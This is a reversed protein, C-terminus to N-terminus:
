DVDEGSMQVETTISRKASSRVGDGALSSERPMMSVSCVEEEVTEQEMPEQPMTSASCVEEEVPEQEMPEQETPEDRELQSSDREPAPTAIAGNLICVQGDQVIFHRKLFM